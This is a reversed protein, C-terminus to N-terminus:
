NLLECGEGVLPKAFRLPLQHFAQQQQVWERAAALEPGLQKRLTARRSVRQANDFQLRPDKSYRSFLDSAVIANIAESGQPQGFHSFAATLAATPQEFLDEACLSRTNRFASLAQDFQLMQTLWLRAALIEDREGPLRAGTLAEIGPRFEESVHRVWTRHVPTRLIALLYEDLGSYLLIAQQDPESQMLAPIMFNVPVNAKVIAPGAAEYRRSLLLRMLRVRREFEEGGEGQAAKAGLQRLAFPERYVLNHGKLDLARALLTSGCHAIHFIFCIRGPHGAGDMRAFVDACHVRHQAGGKPLIRRDLFISKFYADRDMELFVAEVGDFSHLFFDPKEFISQLNM